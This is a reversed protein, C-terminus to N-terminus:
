RKGSAQRQEKCEVSHGWTREMTSVSRRQPWLPKGTMPRPGSPSRMMQPTTSRCCSSVSSAVPPRLMCAEGVGVSLVPFVASDYM